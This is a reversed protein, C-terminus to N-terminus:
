WFVTGIIVMTSINVLAVLASHWHHGSQWHQGHGWITYYIGGCTTNNVLPIHPTAHFHHWKLHHPWSITGKAHSLPMEPIHNIIHHYSVSLCPPSAHSLLRCFMIQKVPINHRSTRINIVVVLVSHWHHGSHWHQGHRGFCQALSSWQTLTLWLWWLVRGIIDVTGIIDMVVLVSHLHHGSHWHQGHCCFCQALSSCQALTSWSWWFVTGIIDVTDINVM